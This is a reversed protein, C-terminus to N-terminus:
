RSLVHAKKKAALKRKIEELGDRASRRPEISADVKQYYEMTRRINEQIPMILLM